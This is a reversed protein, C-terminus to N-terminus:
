SQVAWTGQLTVSLEPYMSLVMECGQVKHRAILRRELRTSGKCGWALKAEESGQGGQEAQRRLCGPSGCRHMTNARARVHRSLLGAARAMSVASIM